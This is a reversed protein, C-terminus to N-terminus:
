NCSAPGGTRDPSNCVHFHFGEDRWVSLESTKLPAYHFPHHDMRWIQHRGPPAPVAVGLGIVRGAHNSGGIILSVPKKGIRLPTPLSVQPIGTMPTPLYIVYGRLDARNLTALYSLWVPFARSMIRPINNALVHAAHAPSYHSGASQAHSLLHNSISGFGGQMLDAVAQLGEIVDMFSQAKQIANTVTVLSRSMSGIQGMVTNVEALTMYGSPDRVGVPRSAAYRLLNANSTDGLDAVFRDVSAFMGLTPDMWRARNYSLLGRGEFPEGAFRYPQADTGLTQTGSGFASYSYRDTVAGAGDTLLRVSGLHDGHFGRQTTGRFLGLL